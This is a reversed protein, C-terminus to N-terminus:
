RCLRALKSRPERDDLARWAANGGTVRPKIQARPKGDSRLGLKKWRAAKRRMMLRNHCRWMARRQEVTFAARAPFRRRYHHLTVEAVPACFLNGESFNTFDGDKFGVQFGAPIKGNMAEWMRRHLQGRNGTTCRFVGRKGPRYQEGRFTILTGFNRARMALGHDHFVQWISQGSRGYIAGVERTSKGSQYEEYMAQVVYGPLGARGRSMKPVMLATARRVTGPSLGVRDLVTTM